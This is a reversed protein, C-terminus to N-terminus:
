LRDCHWTHGGGLYESLRRRVPCSAPRAPQGFPQVQTLDVTWMDVTSHAFALGFAKGDFYCLNSVQLALCAPVLTPMICADVPRSMGELEWGALTRKSSLQLQLRM